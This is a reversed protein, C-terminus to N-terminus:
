GRNLFDFDKRVLVSNTYDFVEVTKFTIEKYNDGDNCYSLFDHKLLYQREQFLPSFNLGTDFTVDKGAISFKPLM